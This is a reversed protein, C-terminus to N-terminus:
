AHVGAVCEPCTVDAITQTINECLCATEGSDCGCGCPYFEPCDWGVAAGRCNDEGLNEVPAGCLTRHAGYHVTM